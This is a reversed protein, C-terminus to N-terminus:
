SLWLRIRNPWAILWLLAAMRLPRTYRIPRRGLCRLIHRAAREPSMMFPRIDSKAMKTDVFGFRVSTVHVGRPRVALALRELYASMGAKSAGYSPAGPDPFCDAQSSLGVIHGRGRALMRPLVAEVTSVLGMLNTAFVARERALQTADFAEGIGACYICADIEGLEDCLAALSAPFDHDCVDLVAHRYRAAHEPALELRAADLSSRSLGAVTWGRALLARALALGIGDSSGIILARQM